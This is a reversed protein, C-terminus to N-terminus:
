KKSNEESITRKVVPQANVTANMVSMEQNQNEM